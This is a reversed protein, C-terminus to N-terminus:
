EIRRYKGDYRGGSGSVNVTKPPWKERAQKSLTHAYVIVMGVGLPIIGYQETNVFFIVWLWNVVMGMAPAFSHGRSLLHTALLTFFSLFLQLYIV